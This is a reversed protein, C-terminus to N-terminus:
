PSDMSIRQSTPSISKNPWRPFNTRILEHIVPLLAEPGTGDETFVDLAPPARFWTIGEGPVDVFVRASDPTLDVVKPWLSRVSNVVRFTPDADTLAEASIPTMNEAIALARAQKTFGSEAVLVIKNTPLNKHKGIM